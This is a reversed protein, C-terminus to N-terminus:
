SRVSECICTSVRLKLTCYSGLLDPPPARDLVPVVVGADAAALPLVAAACLVPGWVCAM